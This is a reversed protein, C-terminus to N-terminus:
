YWQGWSRVVRRLRKQGERYEKLHEKPIKPYTIEDVKGGVHILLYSFLELLKLYLATIPNLKKM